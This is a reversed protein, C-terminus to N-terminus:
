VFKKHESDIMKQLNDPKNNFPNEDKHHIVYGSNPYILNNPNHENWVKWPLSHRGGDRTMRNVKKMDATLIAHYKEANRM